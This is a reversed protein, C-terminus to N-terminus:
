EDGKYAWYDNGLSVYKSSVALIALMPAPSVRRVLNLVSYLTKAHVARQSSLGALGKFARELLSELSMRSLQAALADAADLDPVSVVALDDFKCFVPAKIVEFVLQDDESCVSRLWENRHSRLPRTRVVISGETKGPELDVYSGVGVKNEVYWESLGYVYRGSLVVWGPFEKATKGDVFTFRIRDTLRATPFLNAVRSALPLTGSRWHPYSLVITVPFKVVAEEQEIESWEDDIAREFALMTEDLIGRNYPIPMYNLYSPTELVAQPEMDHLYWLAHGSPGVEDFRADCILAYELSFLQLPESIEAPLEMDDLFAATELPGGGAMDLLAEAINLQGLSVDMLLDSLFWQHAVTLFQEDSELVERLVSKVKRGYDAYLSDATVDEASIYVAENLLHPSQLEAVFELERGDDLSVNIVSFADHEPNSGARVVLVVGQLNGLHPFNIKDGVAYTKHPRYVCEPPFADNIEELMQQHRFRLLEYTLQKLTQPKESDVLFNVLYDLDTPQVSFKDWYQDNKMASSAIM